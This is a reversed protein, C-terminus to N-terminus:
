GSHMVTPIVRSAQRYTTCRLLGISLNDAQRVHLSWIQDYGHRYVRHTLLCHNPRCTLCHIHHDATGAISDTIVGSRSHEHLGHAMCYAVAVEVARWGHCTSPSEPHDAVPPSIAHPTATPLMCSDTSQHLDGGRRMWGHRGNHVSSHPGSSRAANRSSRADVHHTM